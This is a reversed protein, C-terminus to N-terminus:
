TEDSLTFVPEAVEGSAVWTVLCFATEDELVKTGSVALALFDRVSAALGELPYSGGALAQMLRSELPAGRRITDDPLRRAVALGESARLIELFEAIRDENIADRIVMGISYLLLDPSDDWAGSFDNWYGTQGIGM